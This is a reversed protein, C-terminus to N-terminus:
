RVTIEVREIIKQCWKYVPLDVAIGDVVCAGLGKATSSEYAHIARKAFDVERESPSFAQHIISVQSPHIAQKGTFGLQKGTTCENELAKIDRFDIHVMDIAQLKFAKATTVLQSRAYLMEMGHQSRIGEVDAIYDESAFVLADLKRGYYSGNVPHIKTATEVIERLNLIGLASEIAAIIRVDREVGCHEFILTEVFQIDATDEVKPVVISQLSQCPLVAQLDKLALDVNQLGNIRVSVESSGFENKDEISVLTDQVMKRADEKRDWPVGDELDLVITDPQTTKAKKIKREDFGPVSLLCRRLPRSIPTVGHSAHSLLPYHENSLGSSSFSSFTNTSSSHNLHVNEQRFSFSLSGGRHGASQKIHRSLTSLTRSIASYSVQPLRMIQSKSQKM